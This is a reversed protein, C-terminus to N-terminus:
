ATAPEPVVVPTSVPETVTEQQRSQMFQRMTREPGWRRRMWLYCLFAIPGFASQAPVILDTRADLFAQTALPALAPVMAGFVATLVMAIASATKGYAKYATIVFLAYVLLDGIGISANYVGMRFAVSPDLPFGLFREALKNTIPWKLTFIVDYVALGLAFWAVHKLRMGGQAYLNSVAVAGLVVIISNEVWYIQWGLVTGLLTRTMWINMGLLLGVGLWLTTRNVVPRYGITLASTFTLVLFGTLAWQPLVVYLLPLTVLFCFLIVIDRGNFTGIPPREQRVRNLYVLALVNTALTATVAVILEFVTPYLLEM